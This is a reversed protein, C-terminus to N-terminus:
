PDSVPMLAPAAAGDSEPSAIWGAAIAIWCLAGVVLGGIAASGFPRRALSTFREM